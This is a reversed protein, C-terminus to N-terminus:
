MRLLYRIVQKNVGTFLYVYHGAIPHEIMQRRQIEPNILDMALTHMFDWRSIMNGTEKKYLIWANVGSLDLINCWVAMPWRRMASKTSYMRAMSDLLDVGCKNANYFEISSPKNKKSSVVSCGRHMTSLLLVCKTRKTQYRVLNAVNGKEMTTEFFESEHLNMNPKGTPIERRYSRITGVITTGNVALQEALSVSTFFNDCCVNYGRKLYPSMLNMVVHTGLSETRSDDAGCYPSIALCYKTELDALLWFKIGYKDPKNPMYQTYRCRTKCPFLQEDITLSFDPSYALQSNSQFREIIDGMLAFKKKDVRQSRKSKKDFRLMSKIERYRNRSMTLSFCELGPLKSWLRDEEFGKLHLVGRLYMLGIFAKLEAISVDWDPIPPKKETVVNRAYDITCERIYELM